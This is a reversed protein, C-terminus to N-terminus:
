AGRDMGLNMLQSGPGKSTPQQQQGQQQNNSAAIQEMASMRDQMKSMVGQERQSAYSEMATKMGAEGPIGMKQGTQIGNSREQDTLLGEMKQQLEVPDITKDKLGKHIYSQLTSKLIEGVDDENLEFFGGENGIMALESVLFINANLGIELPIQQGKQKISGEMKQNVMNATNPISKEPPASKLMDYITSKTKKDHLLSALGLVYNDVKQQKEPDMELFTGKVREEPPVSMDIIPQGKM